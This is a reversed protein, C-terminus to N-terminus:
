SFFTIIVVLCNIKQKATFRPSQSETISAYLLSVYLLLSLTTCKRLVTLCFQYTYNHIVNLYKFPLQHVAM